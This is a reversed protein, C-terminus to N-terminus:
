AAIDRPLIADSNTSSPKGKSSTLSPWHKHRMEKGDLLVRSYSSQQWHSTICGLWLLNKLPMFLLASFPNNLAPRRLLNTEGVAINFWHLRTWGSETSRYFQQTNGVCVANKLLFWLLIRHGYNYTGPTLKPKQCVPLCSSKFCDLFNLSTLWRHIDRTSSVQFPILFNLWYRAQHLWEHYELFSWYLSHLHHQPDYLNSLDESCISLYILRYHM